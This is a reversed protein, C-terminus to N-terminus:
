RTVLRNLIILIHIDRFKWSLKNFMWHNKETEQILTNILDETGVDGIDIAANAVETMFSLLIQFDNLAERVMSDSNKNLYSEQIESLELYEKLTSVPTQGFVRIREAIADINGRAQTYLREFQAHLEFFDKGKVNWHFNQMKQNHVQYNALLVNLTRVIEVAEIGTYGLKKYIRKHPTPTKILTM